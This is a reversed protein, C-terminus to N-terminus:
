IPRHTGLVAQQEVATRIKDIRGSRTEALTRQLDGLSLPDRHDDWVWRMVDLVPASLTDALTRVETSPVPVAREREVGEQWSSKLWFFAILGLIVVLTWWIYINIRTLFSVVASDPPGLREYSVGEGFGLIANAVLLFVVVGVVAIVVRRILYPMGLRSITRRLIRSDERLRDRSVEHLQLPNQTM